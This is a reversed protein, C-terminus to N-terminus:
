TLAIPPLCNGTSMKRGAPRHAPHFGPLGISTTSRRAPWHPDAILHLRNIAVHDGEGLCGAIWIAGRQADRQYLKAYGRGEGMALVRAQSDRPDLGPISLKLVRAEGAPTVVDAVLAATGGSLYGVVLLGWAASLDQIVGDLSALWARGIDGMADVQFRAAKPLHRAVDTTLDEAQESM